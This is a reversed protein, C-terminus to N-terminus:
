DALKRVSVRAPRLLVQHLRAGKQLVQDVRDDEEPDETPVRLLAEMSNPDFVEGPEPNLMALGADQLIQLLKREVLVVGELVSAATAKSADLMHIREFDDVAELLSAALRGQARVESQAMEERTRKRYNEFEAALRLHRDQLEALAAETENASPTADGAEEAGAESEAETQTGETTALDQDLDLDSAGQDKM